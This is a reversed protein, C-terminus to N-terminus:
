LEWTSAKFFYKESKVEVVQMESLLDGCPLESLELGEFAKGVGLELYKWFEGLLLMTLVHYLM